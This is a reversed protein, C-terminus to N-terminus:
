RDVEDGEGCVDMTDGSTLSIQTQMTFKQKKWEMEHECVQKCSRANTVWVKPFPDTDTSNEPVLKIGNLIINKKLVRM